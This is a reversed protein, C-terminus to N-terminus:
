LWLADDERGAADPPGIADGAVAPLARAVPVREGIAGARLQDVHLEHLEM